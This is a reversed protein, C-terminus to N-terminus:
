TIAKVAKEDFFVETSCDVDFTPQMGYPGGSTLVPAAGKLRTLTRSQKPEVKRIAREFAATSTCVWNRVRSLVDRPRVFKELHHWLNGNYEFAHPKKYTTLFKEDGDDYVPWAYLQEIAIGQRALRAIMFAFRVDDKISWNRRRPDDKHYFRYGIDDNIQEIRTPIWWSRYREAFDIPRWERLFFAEADIRDGDADLLFKVEESLKGDPLVYPPNSADKMVCVYSPRDEEYSQITPYGHERLWKAPNKGLPTQEGRQRCYCQVVGDGLDYQKLYAETARLTLKEGREDRVYQLTSDPESAPRNFLYFSDRFGYPFAYMGYRCPPLHDSEGTNWTPHDYAKLVGYRIFKM